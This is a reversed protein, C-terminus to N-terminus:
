HVADDDLMIKLEEMSMAVGTAFQYMIDYRDPPNDFLVYGSVGRGLIWGLELHASKGGPMVLVAATSSKLWHTDFDFVTRAHPSYLAQTFNRKRQTEYEQWKDDAEPGAAYWDDFVDHGWTRMEAAVIPVQPNRLSGILYIM